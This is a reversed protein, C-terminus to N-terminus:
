FLLSIISKMLKRHTRNRLEALDNIPTTCILNKIHPWVFFDCPTLNCSRPPWNNPTNCSIVRNYFETTHVTAGNQQFYGYVLEDCPAQPSTKFFEVIAKVKVHTQQVEKLGAQVILNISHAFCPVGCPLGGIRATAGMNAANDTVLAVVENYVSWETLVRQKQSWTKPLIGRM